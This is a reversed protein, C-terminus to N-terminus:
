RVPKRPSAPPPTRSAWPFRGEVVTRRYASLLAQREESLPIRPSADGPREAFTTQGENKTDTM